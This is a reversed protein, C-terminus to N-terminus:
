CVAGGIHPSLRWQQAAHQALSGTCVMGHLAMCHWAVGPSPCAYPNCMHGGLRAAHFISPEAFMPLLSADFSSSPIYQTFYRYLRKYSDVGCFPELDALEAAGAELQFMLFNIM